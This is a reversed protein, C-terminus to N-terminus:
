ALVFSGFVRWFAHAICYVFTSCKDVHRDGQERDGLGSEIVKTRM